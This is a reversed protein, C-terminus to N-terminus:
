ALARTKNLIAKIGLFEGYRRVADALGREETRTLQDMRNSEVMVHDRNFTRRWTGKIRGKSLIFHSFILKPLRHGTLSRGVTTTASTNMM